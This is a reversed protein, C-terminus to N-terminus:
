KDTPRIRVVNGSQPRLELSSGVTSVEVYREDGHRGREQRVQVHVIGHFDDAPDMRFEVLAKKGLPRPTSGKDHMDAYPDAFTDCGEPVSGKLLAVEQRLIANDSELMQIHRQLWSPFKAIKEAMEENNM